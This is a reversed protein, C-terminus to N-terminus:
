AAGGGFAIALQATETAAPSETPCNRQWLHLPLAVQEGYGRSIRIGRQEFASLAAEFTCGSDTDQVLVREVGLGQLQALIEADIAIAPPKRLFHKSANVRKSFVGNEVAGIIRGDPLRIIQKM